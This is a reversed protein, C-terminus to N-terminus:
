SSERECLGKLQKHRHPLSPAGGDERSSNSLLSVLTTTVQFKLDTFEAATCVYSPLRESECRHTDVISMM